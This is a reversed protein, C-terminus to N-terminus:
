AEILAKAQLLRSKLAELDAPSKNALDGRVEALATEIDEIIIIVSSSSM